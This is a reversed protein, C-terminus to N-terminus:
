GHCEKSAFIGAFAVIARAFKGAGSRLSGSGETDKPFAEDGTGFLGPRNETVRLKDSRGSKAHAIEVRFSVAFRWDEIVVSTDAFNQGDVVEVQDERGQM